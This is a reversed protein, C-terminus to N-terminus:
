RGLTRRWIEALGSAARELTFHSAVRKRATEGLRAGLASDDYIRIMADALREPSDPPVLLSSEEDALMEATGGVATAIIPRSAAAAELLVRGFPEQRACHVILDIEPLLREIDDRYGLRHFRERLGGVAFEFDISEDHAVTEVKTSHRQGILLFHARPMRRAAVVAGRAFVDQAKRLSVQGITAILFADAPLGLEERLRTSSLQPRAAGSIGNYVVHLRSPDVGQAAHFEHVARSVAILSRNANLHAVAVPGLGIMDRLHATCVIGTRAAVLGTLRGMSLSNGHVLEPQLPRIVDRLDAVISDTSRRQGDVDGVDFTITPVGLSRLSEALPGTSPALAAFEFDSGVFHPLVSLMSREGGNLIGFEFVLLV